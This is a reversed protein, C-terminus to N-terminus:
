LYSSIYYKLHSYLRHLHVKHRDQERSIETDLAAEAEVKEKELLSLRGKAKVLGTKLERVSETEILIEDEDELSILKSELSSIQSTMHIDRQKLKSIDATLGRFEGECRHVDARFGDVEVRLERLRQVATMSSGGATSVDQDLEARFAALDSEYKRKGELRENEIDAKLAKLVVEKEQAVESGLQSMLRERAADNSKVVRKKCQERWQRLDDSLQERLNERDFHLQQSVKSLEETQLRLEEQMSKVHADRVARANNGLEDASLSRLREAARTIREREEELSVAAEKMEVAHKQRTEVLRQQAEQKERQLQVKYKQRIKNELESVKIERENELKKELVLLTGEIEETLRSLELKDQRVMDDMKPGFGEAANKKFVPLKSQVIKDVSLKEDAELQNLSRASKQKCSREASTLQEERTVHILQHKDYLAEYKKELTSIDINLKLIFDEQKKIGFNQEREQESLQDDIQKQRKEMRRSKVASLRIYESQFERAKDKYNKIEAKLENIKNKVEQGITEIVNGNSSASSGSRHLLSSNPISPTNLHTDFNDWIYSSSSTAAKIIHNAREHSPSSSSSTENDISDLYSMLSSYAMDGEM